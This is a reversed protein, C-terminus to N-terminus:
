SAALMSGLRQLSANIIREKASPELNQLPGDVLLCALGHLLAWRTFAPNAAPDGHWPPLGM